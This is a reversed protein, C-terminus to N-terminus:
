ASGQALPKRMQFNTPAYGLKQYLAQAGHNNAFVNLAITTAGAAAASSELAELARTAHGQRRAEPIIEIDYIFASIAGHKREISLWAFGVPGSGDAVIEYLFHNPTSLGQPLLKEFDARSRKLAGAELWRGAAVNDHAYSIIAAEVYPGYYEPRMPILTTM